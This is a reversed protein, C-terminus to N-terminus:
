DERVEPERAFLLTIAASLGFAGAMLLLPSAYSVRGYLTGGLLGGVATTLSGAAYMQSSFVQNSGIVRMLASIRGRHETPSHDAFLAQSAVGGMNGMMVMFMYSLFAPTFSRSYIFTLLAVPTLALSALIPRLRGYRDVVRAFPISVVLGLFTSATGFLGWQAATLRIVDETAYTVMFASGAAVGFQLLGGLLILLWLQRTLVRLTQRFERLTGMVLDSAELREGQDPPLTESLLTVRMLASLSYTAFCIMYAWRQAQLVGYRDMLVGAVYPSILGMLPPITQWLGYGFARSEADTSDALLAEFSPQRLGEFVADLCVGIIIWEWTPALVYILCDLAMAISMSYIMRKRGMKDALYGGFFVPILSVISGVAALLGVHFSTGGLSIVFLAWFPWTMGGGMSVLGSSILMVGLNSRLFRRLKRSL